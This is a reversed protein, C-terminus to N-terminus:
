QKEALIGIFGAHQDMGEKPQEMKSVDEPNQYLSSVSTAVSFNQELLLTKIGEVTFFHAHEYFPHNNRKKQQLNEGWKGTAPVFGLVLQGNGQLVRWAEQLVAAPDQVFCITFYLSVTTFIADKFPLAEGVSQCVNISRERAIQLPAFAPDIGVPTGLAAAFRGPGVGIELSPTQLSVPLAAIAEKEISFLLSDDFWSDYEKARDNYVRSSERWHSGM